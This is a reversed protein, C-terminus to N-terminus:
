EDDLYKAAKSPKKKSGGDDDKALGLAVMQHKLEKSETATMPEGARFKALLTAAMEIAFRNEKVLLKADISEVLDGWAAKQKAKFHKPMALVPAASAISVVNDSPKM